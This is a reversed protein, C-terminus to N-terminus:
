NIDKFIPLGNQGTPIYITGARDKLENIYLYQLYKPTLSENIIRQADRQGEAEIRKREAEKKEKSLVFDYRQSEQESQLKAQISASLKNPLIVNRLLVQEILIGRPEIARALSEKISSTIETRKASYVDKADYQAIIERIVSRIVPRIIKEQYNLGLKRYVESATDEVLRYQITIDLDIPLGEKTLASIQDAGTRQGEGTTGSMTYEETRISMKNVSIFPNIIHLGESLESDKVKGFLSQVGTNGAPITVVCNLFVIFAVVLIGGAFIVKRTKKDLSQNVVHEMFNKNNSNFSTHSASNNKILSKFIKFFKEVGDFIGGSTHADKNKLYIKRLISFIVFYFILNIIADM